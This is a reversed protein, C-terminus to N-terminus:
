WRVWSRRGVVEEFLEFEFQMTEVEVLGFEIQLKVAVDVEEV